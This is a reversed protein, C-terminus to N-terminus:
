QITIGNIGKYYKLSNTTFWIRIYYSFVNCEESSNGTGHTMCWKDRLKGRQNDENNKKHKGSCCGKTPNNSSSAPEGTNKRSLGDRNFDEQKTPKKYTLVLGKYIYETIVIQKFMNVSNNFPPDFDFGQLHAQKIWGTPMSHLM